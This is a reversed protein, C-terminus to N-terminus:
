SSHSLARMTESRVNQTHRGLSAKIVRDRFDLEEVMENVMDTVRVLHNGCVTAQTREDELVVDVVQGFAVFGDGGAGALVTGDASWALNLLSGVAPNAQLCHLLVRM